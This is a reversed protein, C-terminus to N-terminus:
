TKRRASRAKSESSTVAKNEADDGSVARKEAKARAAAREAFTSGMQSLAVGEVPPGPEIPTAKAGPVVDVPKSESQKSETM